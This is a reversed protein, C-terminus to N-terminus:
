LVQLCDFLNGLSLQLANAFSPVVLMQEPSAIALPQQQPQYIMVLREAPDILWGMQSGYDLCHLINLVVRNVSQNSILIEIAWDPPQTFINAITGDPNTPINDWTFVSIDPVISRDGFTCRLEPFAWAIHERKCLGNVATILEGQITSHEGQPSQKQTIIGNVFESAPKTEPQQLFKELAIAQTLVM